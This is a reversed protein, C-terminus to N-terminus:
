ARPELSRVGTEPGRVGPELPSVLLDGDRVEGEMARPGDARRLIANSFVAGAPVAVGDTVICRTLSAGRGLTVGDWLVSEVVRAGDVRQAAATGNSGCSLATRFYDAPTGIDHFTDGAPFTRVSGPRAALLAPYLTAISAWPTDSPVDAYAAAEVVQAGVFHQSPTTSGPRAFGTVTGDATAVVGGYKQPERNLTTAMTVLAGSRRHAALLGDFDVSCLTDGNLVLFTPAGVLPAARKPGGASGLITTEWSYRVPLGVATGDGIRSTITQPLYHLNLVADTVGAGRLQELIIWALPRGALPLAAKARILSLPRLRTALGATLVVAPIGVGSV